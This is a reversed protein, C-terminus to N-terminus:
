PKANLPPRHGARHWIGDPHRELGRYNGPLTCVGGYQHLDFARQNRFTEHCVGCHHLEGAPRLSRRVSWTFGCGAIGFRPLDICRRTGEPDGPRVGDFGDIASM